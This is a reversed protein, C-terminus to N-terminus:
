GLAERVRRVWGDYSSDWEPSADGDDFLDLAERLLAVLPARIKQREADCEATECSSCLTPPPPQSKAREWAGCRECQEERSRDSWMDDVMSQTADSM